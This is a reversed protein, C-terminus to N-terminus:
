HERRGQLGRPWVWWEVRGQQGELSIPLREAMAAEIGVVRIIQSWLGVSRSLEVHM